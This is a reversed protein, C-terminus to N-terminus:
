ETVHIALISPFCHTIKKVKDISLRLIWDVTPFVRKSFSAWSQRSQECPAQVTILLLFFVSLSLSVCVLYSLIFNDIWLHLRILLATLLYWYYLLEFNAHVFGFMLRLSLDPRQFRLMNSKRHLLTWLLIPGALNINNNNNIIHCKRNNLFM